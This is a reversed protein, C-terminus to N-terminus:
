FYALLFIKAQFHKIYVTQLTQKLRKVLLFRLTTLIHINLCDVVLENEALIKTANASFANYHLVSLNDISNIAQTLENSNAVDAVLFNAEIGESKLEDVLIKSKEASRGILVRAFGSKGFHLATAKSIGVGAGIIAITKKM